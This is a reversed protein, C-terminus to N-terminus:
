GDRGAAHHLKITGKKEDEGEGSRRIIIQPEPNGTDLPEALMVTDGAVCPLLLSLLVALM